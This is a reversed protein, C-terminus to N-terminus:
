RIESNDPQKIVITQGHNYNLIQILQEAMYEPSYNFEDHIWEIIMGLIAHAQYNTFLEINITTSQKSNMLDQLPLRKLEHCIRLQFTFWVTSKVILSYFNKHAAVHGFIKITSSTLDKINLTEKHQYPERYSLIFDKMVDEMIEDLIDEKYQFNNYFTGRNLDAAKVIETITIERVDKEQMLLLFTDKIAKKSKKIRRDTLSNQKSM